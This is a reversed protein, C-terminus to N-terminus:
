LPHPDNDSITPSSGSSISSGTFHRAASRCGDRSKRCRGAIIRSPSDSSRPRSRRSRASRATRTSCRFPPLVRLRRRLHWLVTEAVSRAPAIDGFSIDLPEPFPRSENGAGTRSRAVQSAIQPFEDVGIEDGEALVVARFVANELQRVNGPWRYATLLALAEASVRAIRKGEEAAFRALFHRVLEPIDEPRERLPPVTIPFVHLRYFLDERFRGHKVDAILDRNTASM